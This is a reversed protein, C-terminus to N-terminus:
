QQLHADRLEQQQQIRPHDLLPDSTWAHCYGCFGERVDNPNYSTKHCQPCTISPQTV